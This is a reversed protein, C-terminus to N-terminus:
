EVIDRAMTLQNKGNERKYSLKDMNKKLFFVGLGGIERNDATASIDPSDVEELPNFAPADDRVIASVEKSDCYLEIEISKSKDGKYGYTVINTFVEDLCLNLAYKSKDNVRSQECFTEVDAYIEDLSDLSAIYTKQFKM